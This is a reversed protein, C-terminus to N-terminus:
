YFDLYFGKYENIIEVIDMVNDINYIENESIEINFKDKVSAIIALTQLSDVGIEKTLSTRDDIKHVSIRLINSIIKKVEDKTKINM